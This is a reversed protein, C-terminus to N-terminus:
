QATDGLSILRLRSIYHLTGRPGLVPPSADFPVGYSWRPAGDPTLSVIDWSQTLLYVNGAADLLPAAQTVLEVEGGATVQGRLAVAWRVSGDARSLRFLGGHSVDSHTQLTGAFINAPTQQAYEPPAPYIVSSGSPRPGVDVMIDGDPAVALSLIRPPDAAALEFGRTWALRGDAELRSVHDVQGAAQAAHAVYIARGDLAVRGSHGPLRTRWSEIGGASLAIVEAGASLVVTGDPDIAPRGRLEVGTHFTWLPAGAQDFAQILTDEGGARTSSTGAVILLGPASTLFRPWGALDASFRLQGQHDYGQLRAGRATNLVVVPAGDGALAVDPPQGDSAVSWLMRGDAAHRSLNSGAIFLSGDPATRLQGQSPGRVERWLEHLEADFAVLADGDAFFRTGDTFLYLSSAAAAGLPTGNLGYTVLRQADGAETDEPRLMLALATASLLGFLPEGPLETSWGPAGDARRAELIDSGNAAHVYLFTTGDHGAALLRVAGVPAPMTTVTGSTDIALLIRDPTGNGRGLLHIGGQSDTHWYDYVFEAPLEVEWRLSGDLEVARLRQELLARRDLLFGAPNLHPQVDQGLELETIRAGSSDFVWVPSSHLADSTLTRVISRGDPLVGVLDALPGRRPSTWLEVQWRLAGSPTLSLLHGGSTLAYLNDAADLDLQLLRDDTEYRWLENGATDLAEIHHGVGFFLTGDAASAFATARVDLGREELAVPAGPGVAPSRRTHGPDGDAQSWGATAPAQEAPQLRGGECAGMLATCGLTLLAVHLRM